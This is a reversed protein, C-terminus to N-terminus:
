SPWCIPMMNKKTKGFVLIDDAFNRCGSLGSLLETVAAQFIEPAANVGYNLRKYRHLGKHSSFTTIYRSEEALRFKHFGSNFDLTSFVTQGNLHALIDEINAMCMDVCIRVVTSKPVVVIPSVWPTPGEVKKITDLEQLRQLEKEM